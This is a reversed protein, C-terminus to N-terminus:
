MAIIGTHTLVIRVGILILVLGGVIEAKAGIIKGIRRGGILGAITFIFSALAILLSTNIIAGDFFAYSLGVGFADISTAISLMVLSSGRTQDTCNGVEHDVRFRCGEMIMKGGIFVLLLFAIWHDVKSVYAAISIGFMWGLYTMGGQFLGFHFALRLVSRLTLQQPSSGICIAVSFCDIALGVAVLGQIWIENM